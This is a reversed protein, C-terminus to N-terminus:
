GYQCKENQGVQKPLFDFLDQKVLVVRGTVTIGEDVGIFIL